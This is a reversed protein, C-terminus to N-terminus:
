SRQLAAPRVGPNYPYPRHRHWSRPGGTHRVSGHRTDTPWAFLYALGALDM